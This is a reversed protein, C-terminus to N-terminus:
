GTYVREVQLHKSLAQTIADGGFTVPIIAPAKISGDNVSNMLLKGMFSM